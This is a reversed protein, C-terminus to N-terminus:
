YFYIDFREEGKRRLWIEKSGKNEAMKVKQKEAASVSDLLIQIWRTQTESSVKLHFIRRIRKVEYSSKPFSARAARIARQLRKKVAEDSM